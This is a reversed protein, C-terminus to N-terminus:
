DRGMSSVNPFYKGIFVSAVLLSTVVTYVAFVINVKPEKNGRLFIFALVLTISELYRAGIWLQNAYYDYDTFIPMGKYSLAHLLDVFAIFLYAVGIFLLYPNRIYKKSNWAIVFLSFAVVISFVEALTHFLLYNVRTTFYLGILTVILISLNIIPQIRKATKDIM